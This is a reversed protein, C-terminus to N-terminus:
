FLMGHMEDIDGGPDFCEDENFASLPTVLFDPEDLKSVYSDESEIDELVIDSKCSFERQDIHYQHEDGSTCRQRLMEDAMKKLKAEDITLSIEEMIDQTVQKTPIPAGDRHEIGREQRRIVRSFILTIEKSSIKENGLTNQVERTLEKFHIVLNEDALCKKLNSVHFTRPSLKGRKGFRIVGKWPSVKLMVMDGVQFEMPKRRVDAYSKQRCLSALVSEGMYLKLHRLGQLECSFNDTSFEVLHVHRDKTGYLYHRWLRLAFVVAGLELDHTMYNEEHKKLQRSAYAIVKERQMLVAGYGKHSADCYVVFNETGKPLALIPASCLKQKLTQFAEDEETGWEYKKNEQEQRHNDICVLIPIAVVKESGSSCRTGFLQLPSVVESIQLQNFLWVAFRDKLLHLFRSNILCNKLDRPISFVPEGWPSSRPRIFGKELLEKLQDSLEKLESPALRYPARTVLTAEACSLELNWSTRPPPFDPLDEPFVGVRICSDIDFLHDLLKLYLGEACHQDYVKRDALEVEYSTNVKPHNYRTFSAGRVNRGQRDVRKPLANSKHGDRAVDYCVVASRANIGYGCEEEANRKRTGMKGCNYGKTPVSCFSMDWWPKVYPLLGLKTQERMKLIGM